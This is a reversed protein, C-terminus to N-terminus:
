KKTFSYENKMLYDEINEKEEKSLESVDFSTYPQMLGKRFCLYKVVAIWNKSFELVKNMQIIAEQCEKIGEINGEGACRYLKSYFNPYANALCPVCGDAGFILAAGCLDENGSLMGGTKNLVLAKQFLSWNSTSDKIAILRPFKLLYKMTQPLIDYHVYSPINYAILKGKINETLFQYHKIIGKQDEPELYYPVASVFYKAGLNEYIKIEELVKESSTELAGVLLPVRGNIYKLAYKVVTKKKEIGLASGEGCSGLVFIGSVGGDICYDILKKLSKKDINRNEDLPTVLPPIIGRLREKTDM